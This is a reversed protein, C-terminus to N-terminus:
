GQPGPAPAAAEANEFMSSFEGLFLQALAPDHLILLAEDNEEEASRTFNYSGTVVTEGDVIIVKHHLLAPSSELRVDLGAQKLREYEAGSAKAQGQDFVGRVAVGARSRDLMAEALADSTFSYAMVEISEEAGRLLSVLRAAVRDEPSFMVEVETGALNVMPHPTDALSAPGFRGDVFMEDFERSFDGTLEASRLRLWNNHDVHASGYTLNMSGAWTELGDILVFKHHMLGQRRDGVVPIGAAILEEVEPELLNDSEVVMRVEVGRQQARLLAQCVSWLNFHYSAVDITFRANDLGAVLQQEALQDALGPRTFYVVVPDTAPPTETVSAPPPERAQLHFLVLVAALSLLAITGGLGTRAWRLIAPKM